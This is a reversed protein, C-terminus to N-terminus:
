TTEILKVQQTVCFLLCEIDLYVLFQRDSDANAQALRDLAQMLHQGLISYIQMSGCSKCVNRLLSALDRRVAYLEEFESSLSSLENFQMFM